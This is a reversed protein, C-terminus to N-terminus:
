MAAGDGNAISVESHAVRKWRGSFGLIVCHRQRGRRFIESKIILQIYDYLPLAAGVSYIWGILRAALVFRGVM